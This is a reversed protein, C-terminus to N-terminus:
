SDTSNPRKKGDKVASSRRFGTLVARTPIGADSQVPDAVTVSSREKRGSKVSTSEGYIPGEGTLIDVM